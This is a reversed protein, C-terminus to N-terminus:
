IDLPLDKQSWNSGTGEHAEIYDRIPAFSKRHIECIGMERIMRLHLESGYGKHSAFGYGPYISDYKCMIRDRTVKAIISAAAISASKGDGGVIAKHPHGFNKMPLGDILCIDVKAGIAEFAIRMAKCTAQLINIQDIEQPSVVGLGIHAAAKTIYEYATDRQKSTLKKSDNIGDIRFDMPLVVAAAVVPGALPGRGAEDIGAIIKYGHKAMQREWLLMDISENADAM